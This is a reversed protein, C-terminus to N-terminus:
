TSPSSTAAAGSATTQGRASWSVPQRGALAQVSPHATHAMTLPRALGM